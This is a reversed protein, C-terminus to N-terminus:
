IHLSLSLSYRRANFRERDREPTPVLGPSRRTEWDRVLQLPYCLVASFLLYGGAAYFSIEYTGTWDKLWGGLPNGILTGIGMFLLSLGYSNNFKDL